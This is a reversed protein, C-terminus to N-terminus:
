PDLRVVHYRALAEILRPLFTEPGNDLIDVWQWGELQYEVEDPFETRELILPIYPRNYKGAVQIEQRVNRSEFAASSCAVLLASCGRISQVIEAAWNTGGRIDHRDMWVNIGAQALLDIIPEVRERDASAYSMFAYGRERLQTRLAEERQRAENAARTLVQALQGLEDPRRAIADLAGPEFGGAEFRMAADTIVSVDRLYALEADRRRKKELSAGIRAKLLVPDFPKPLYDEAGLEIGRVISDMQDLASIMIVPVERMAADDRRRELVGYGDLQPMMVDLLVLDIGGKALMALAELGDRAEVVGYGLRQLRRGLVDRNAEDDDVVLVTERRGARPDQAAGTDREIGISGTTLRGALDVLRGAAAVLRDLDSTPLGAPAARLARAAEQLSRAHDRLATAGGAVTGDEGLMGPVLGLVTRARSRIDNLQASAEPAIGEEELLLETYGILHNVPTRLEHRLERAEEPTM